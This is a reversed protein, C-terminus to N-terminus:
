GDGTVVGNILARVRELEDENVTHPRGPYVRVEVWAGMRELVRASEEVRGLPVHPDPASTGIFVTTGELSGPYDRPTGDPGIVGGTLGIVAGYRRPYRAAFELTLCAGQSFGLLLVKEAPIGADLVGEVVSALKGLASGLYPENRELPALFSFPYWTNGAAQPALYAVDDRDLARALQLMGEANGGRGHVLILVASAKDLPRGAPVVPQDRHPDQGAAISDSM